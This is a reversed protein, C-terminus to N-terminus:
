TIVACFIRFWIKKTVNWVIVETQRYWRKGLKREFNDVHVQLIEFCCRCVKKRNQLYEQTFFFLIVFISSLVIIGSCFLVFFNCPQLSLSLSLSLLVCILFFAFCMERLSCASMKAPVSIIGIDNINLGHVTKCFCWFIKWCLCQCDCLRIAM